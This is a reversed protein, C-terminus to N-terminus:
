GARRREYRVPIPRKPGITFAAMDPQPSYDLLKLHLRRLLISWIVKMTTSAFFYGLCRHKGGGFGILSYQTKRDEERGPGFRDPDFLHPNAFVHPLRHSMLPSIALLSGAPMVYGGYEFDQLITRLIMIVVPHMREAEKMCRELYTMRLVAKLTLEGGLASGSPGCVEEQEQLVAALHKPNQLLLIGAWAATGATSDRAVVLLATLLGTIVSPALPKEERTRADMLVQLLDDGPVRRAVRDAIVESVLTEMERRAQVRRRHKPLPSNPWLFSIGDFRAMDQYLRDYREFQAGLFEPGLIFRSAIHGEMEDIFSRLELEGRDPLRDIFTEVQNSIMRVWVGMQEQRMSPLFFDIQEDMIEPTATFLVGEGLVPSLFRYAEHGSLVKDSARCFAENAKPGIMFTMQRSGLYFCFVEGVQHYGREILGFPDRVFELAHRLFPVRGPVEPPSKPSRRIRHIGSLSLAVSAAAVNGSRFHQARIQSIESITKLVQSDHVEPGRARLRIIVMSEWGLYLGTLLWPAWAGYLLLYNALRRSEMGPYGALHTRALYFVVLYCLLASVTLQLWDRYRKGKVIAFMLWAYLPCLILLHLTQYAAAFATPRDYFARDAAGYVSWLRAVLDSRASLEARFLVWYLGPAYTAVLLFGLLGVIALDKAGLRRVPVRKVPRAHPLRTMQAPM